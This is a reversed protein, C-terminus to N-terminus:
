VEADVDASVLAAVTDVISIEAFLVCVLKNRLVALVIVVSDNVIELWLPCSTKVDVHDGAVSVSILV